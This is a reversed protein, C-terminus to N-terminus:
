PSTEFGSGPEGVEVRVQCTSPNYAIWQEAEGRQGPQLTRGTYHVVQICSGDPLRPLQQTLVYSHELRPLNYVIWGNQTQWPMLIQPTSIHLVGLTAVVILVGLLVRVWSM